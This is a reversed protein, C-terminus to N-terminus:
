LKITSKNATILLHIEGKFRVDLFKSFLYKFIVIRQFNSNKPLNNSIGPYIINQGPVIKNVSKIATQFNSLLNRSVFAIIVINM